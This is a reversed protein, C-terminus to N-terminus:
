GEELGRDPRQEAVLQGNVLSVREWRAAAWIDHRVSQEARLLAAYQSDPQAQLKAPEGCEVIRGDAVVWVLPFSLTNAIDHSVFLLTSQAYSRRM